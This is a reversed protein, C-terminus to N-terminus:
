LGTTHAQSPPEAMADSRLVNADFITVLFSYISYPEFIQEVRKSVGRLKCSRLPFSVGTSSSIDYDPLVKINRYALFLQM